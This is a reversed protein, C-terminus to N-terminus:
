EYDSVAFDHQKCKPCESMNVGMSSLNIRLGKASSNLAWHITCFVASKFPRGNSQVNKDSPHILRYLGPILFERHVPLSLLATLAPLLLGPLCFTYYLYVCQCYSNLTCLLLLDLNREIGAFLPMLCHLKADDPFIRLKGLVM